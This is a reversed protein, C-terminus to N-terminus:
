ARKGGDRCGSGSRRIGDRVCNSELKRELTPFIAIFGTQQTLHVTARKHKKKKVSKNCKVQAPHRAQFPSSPEAPRPEPLYQACLRAIGHQAPRATCRERIVWWACGAPNRCFFAWGDDQWAAISGEHSQWAGVAESAVIYRDGEERNPPPAVLDRNHRM